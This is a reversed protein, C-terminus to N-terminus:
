LSADESSPFPKSTHLMPEAHKLHCCCFDVLWLRRQNYFNGNKFKAYWDRATREAIAGEGYMACIDRAAKADKSGQNFAFLLLHRFHESKEVQCEM